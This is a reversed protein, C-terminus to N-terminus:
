LSLKHGHEKLWKKHEKYEPYMQAVLGWFRKSHNMEKTHALEHVVVYDVVKMPAMVLRWSFSLNKLRNCSGWRKQAHTITIKRYEVDHHTAWFAVRQSIINRAQKRYWQEFLAESKHLVSSCMIFGKEFSLKPSWTNRVMLEYSEGLFWFSEGNQFKKQPNETLRKRQQAQKKTIWLTKETIFRQIAREPVFRPARVVLQADRTIELSLTRRSSRIIKDIQINM